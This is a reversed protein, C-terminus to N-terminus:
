VMLSLYSNTLMKQPFANKLSQNKVVTIIEEIQEDSTFIVLLGDFILDILNKFTKGILFSIWVNTDFV